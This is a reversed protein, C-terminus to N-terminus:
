LESDPVLVFRCVQTEDFKDGLVEETTLTASDRDMVLSLSAIRRGELGLFKIIAQQQDWSAFSM